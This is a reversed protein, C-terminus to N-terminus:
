LKGKWTFYKNFEKPLDTDNKFIGYVSSGSGSMSAYVAGQQYLKYKINKIEPQDPFIIDEFDNKITEKWNDIPAKILEKLCTKPKMPKAKSYAVGTNIHIEPYVVVIFFDKLNLHISELINGRETAFAPKNEIFIACDSGIQEAYQILEKNSLKLNFLKNLTKLTFSADSSGGGLGSGFPIIKHLHLNINPLDFDHKLIEYAKYCLNTKPNGNEVTLGTNNFHFEKESETIELIDSINVPYFITEINHFGDHRSETINLGINIKANPFSIM